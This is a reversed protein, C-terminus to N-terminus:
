SIFKTYWIEFIILSWILYSHDKKCNQHEWLLNAVSSRKLYGAKISNGNMLLDTSQKKWNTRLWNSIPVGFGMKKRNLLCSPIDNKFANKLIYKRSNFKQKYDLPLSTAFEVIKHDMFPSRIELSNAMSAIDVKTLIDGNLYTQLDLDIIKEINSTATSENIIKSLLRDTQILKDDLIKEGYINHKQTDTCRTLMNLYRSNEDSALASTIRNLKGLFTRENAGQDTIKNTCYHIFKRINTPIRDCYSLNRFVLYRYYGAFLEDAGDGSLAVTINRGAFQSLYYTPIMSADAYPEGYHTVLKDLIDFDSPDVLLEHHITNYKQSATKAYKREDFKNNEFGITFSEIPTRKIGSAISTIICSDIGGSLFTGLPVDSMLRKSVSEELLFKLKETAEEYSIDLKNNFSYQWYKKLNITSKNLNLELYHAPPLKHINKYITNPAPIYQLTLYDHFSQQNIIKEANPHKIIAQLESSFLFLRNKFYYNLPKQGMRDRALFLKKNSIDYLAFAFMGDLLNLCEIGYEEYLHIIIETDCATKFIHGKKILSEKLVAHNYIEGNYTIWINDDENSLPQSGSNIDIISLRKHALGVNGIIKIGEGDPGRHRLTNNMKKLIAPDAPKGCINIIGSIGCM